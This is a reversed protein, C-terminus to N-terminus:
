SVILRPFTVVHHDREEACKKHLEQVNFTVVLCNFDLKWVVDKGVIDVNLALRSDRKDRALHYEM